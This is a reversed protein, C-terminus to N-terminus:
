NLVLGSERYFKKKQNEIRSKITMDLYLHKEKNELCFGGITSDDAEKFSVEESVEKLLEIDRLLARCVLKGGQMEAAAKKLLKRMDEAYEASKTYDSVNKLVADFIEEFMESRRKIIDQKLSNKYSSVEMEKDRKLKETEIYIRNQKNSKKDDKIDAAAAKLRENEAKRIKDLEDQRTNEASRMVAASFKTLADIAM